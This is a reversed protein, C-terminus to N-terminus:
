TKLKDREAKPLTKLPADLKVGKPVTVPPLEVPVYPVAPAESDIQLDIVPADGALAAFTGDIEQGKMRATNIAFAIRRAAEMVDLVEHTTKQEIHQVAKGEVRDFIMDIARQDGQLANSILKEVIAQAVTRPAESTQATHNLRTILATTLPRANARGGPCGSEGPKFVM